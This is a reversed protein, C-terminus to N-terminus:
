RANVTMSAQGAGQSGQYKVQAEWTGGSELTVKARYWGPINTTTLTAKNNMEAMSGMAPMHFNLSAAGVDLPKGSSDEFTIMLENDGSKLEGAPSTLAITLSGVTTSKIVKRDSSGGHGGCAAILTAIAILCATGFDRMRM